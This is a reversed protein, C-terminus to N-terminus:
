EMAVENVKWGLVVLKGHKFSCGYRIHLLYARRSSILARAFESPVYAKVRIYIEETWLKSKISNECASECYIILTKVRQSVIFLIYNLNLFNFNMKDRTIKTM